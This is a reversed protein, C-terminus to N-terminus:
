MGADQVVRDSGLSAAPDSTLTAKHKLVSNSIITTSTISFGVTSYHNVSIDAYMLLGDIEICQAFAEREGRDSSLGEKAM